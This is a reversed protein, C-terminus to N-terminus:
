EQKTLAMVHQWMIKDKLQTAYFYITFVTPELNYKLKKKLAGASGAVVVHQPIVVVKICILQLLESVLKAVGIHAASTRDADGGRSIIGVQHREPCPVVQHFLVMVRSLSRVDRTPRLVSCWCGHGPRDCDVGVASLDHIKSLILAFVDAVRSMSHYLTTHLTPLTRVKKSSHQWLASM